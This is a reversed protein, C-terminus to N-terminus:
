KIGANKKMQALLAEEENVQSGGTRRGVDGPAEKKVFEPFDALVAAVKEAETAGEYDGALALKRVREAKDAPVGLKLAAAEARAESAERKSKTLEDATAKEKEARKQEETLQGDRITKLKALDAKIDGSPDFGAEALLKKVEKGADRTLLDNLQKDTYKPAEAAPAPPDAAPPTAPPTVPAVPPTTVTAVVPPIQDPM